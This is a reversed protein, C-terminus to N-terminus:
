FPTCVYGYSELKNKTMTNCVQQWEASNHPNECYWCIPARDCSTFSLMYIVSLIGTVRLVVKKRKSLMSVETIQHLNINVASV